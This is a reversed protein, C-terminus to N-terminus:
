ETADPWGAEVLLARFSPPIRKVVGGVREPGGGGRILYTTPWGESQDRPPFASLLVRFGYACYEGVQCEYDAVITMERDLGPINV